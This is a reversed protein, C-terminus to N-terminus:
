GKRRKRSSLIGCTSNISCKLVATESIIFCIFILIARERRGSHHRLSASRMKAYYEKNIPVVLNKDDRSCLDKPLFERITVKTKKDKDYGIYRASDARNDLLKGVIYRNKLVTSLPLFPSAQLTDKPFKCYPCVAEGNNEKMCGVCLESM